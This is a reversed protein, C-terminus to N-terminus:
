QVNFDFTVEIDTEGGANTIDGSSVGMASKDPEHRLTVTLSTSGTGSTTLTSSLGLPNGAGDDDNYTVSVNNNSAAFFFQHEAAEAEIEQTIDEVPEESENLVSIAASFTTGSPLDQTTITPENGGEGDLDEFRFEYTSNDEATLSMVLTTILEGEHDHDHDDEPECATFVLAM